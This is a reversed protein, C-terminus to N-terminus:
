IDRSVNEGEIINWWIVNTEHIGKMRSTGLMMKVYM